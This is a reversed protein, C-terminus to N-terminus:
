RGGMNLLRPGTGLEDMISQRLARASNALVQFNFEARPGKYPYHTIEQSVAVIEDLGDQLMYVVEPTRFEGGRMYIRHAFYAKASARYLRSAMETRRMTEILRSYQEANRIHPKARLVDELASQAVRVAYDKEAVISRLYDVNMLERDDLWGNEFVQPIEAAIAGGPRKLERPALHNTVDMWYHFTKNVDHDVTYEMSRQWKGPNMTIYSAENSFSVTSRSAVPLGLTYMMSSIIDYSKRFAPEIYPGAQEGYKQSVFEHYVKDINMWPDDSARKLAYLNIECPGDIISSEYFRDTRAVYGEINPESLYEKWRKLHVEPLMSALIGQGNYEHAADFEVIVPYKRISDSITSLPHTLLFAQEAETIMVTLAPHRMQRVASVLLSFQRADSVAARICLDLDHEDIFISALSDVVAAVKTAGDPLLLSYQDTIVGPADLFNLVIGDVEPILTLMSRYDIRIWRWLGPNDLDLREKGDVVRRFEEPYYGVDYLAQDWVFVDPIGKEHAYTALRNVLEARGAPRVDKLQNVLQHSFEIHNIDYDSTAVDIV